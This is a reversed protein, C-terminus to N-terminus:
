NIGLYSIPVNKQGLAKYFYSNLIECATFSKWGSNKKNSNVNVAKM